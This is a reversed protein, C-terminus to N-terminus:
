EIDRIVSLAKLLEYPCLLKQIFTITSELLMLCTEHPIANFIEYLFRGLPLLFFSNTVNRFSILLLDDVHLFVELLVKLIHKALQFTCSNWCSDCIRHSFWDPRLLWYTRLKQLHHFQHCFIPELKVNGSSLIRSQYSQRLLHPLVEVWVWASELYQSIHKYLVIPLIPEFHFICVWGINDFLSHVMYDCVERFYVRRSLRSRINWQRGYWFIGLAGKVDELSV